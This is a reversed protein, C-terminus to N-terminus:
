AWEKSVRRQDRALGCCKVIGGIVEMPTQLPGALRKALAPGNEKTVSPIPDSATTTLGRGEALALAGGALDRDTRM